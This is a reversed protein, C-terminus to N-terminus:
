PLFCLGCRGLGSLDGPDTGHRFRPVYGEVSLQSPRVLQFTNLGRSNWVVLWQIEPDGFRKESLQRRRIRENHKSGPDGDRITQGFERQFFFTPSEECTVM